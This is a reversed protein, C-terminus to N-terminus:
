KACQIKIKFFNFTAIINWSTINNFTIPYNSRSNDIGMHTLKPDLMQLFKCPITFESLVRWNHGDITVFQSMTLFNVSVYLRLPQQYLSHQRREMKLVKSMQIASALYAKEQPTIEHNLPKDRLRPIM